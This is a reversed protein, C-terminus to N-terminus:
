RLKKEPMLRPTPNLTLSKSMPTLKVCGWLDADVRARLRAQNRHCDSSVSFVVFVVFVNVVCKCMELFIALKANAVRVWLEISLIISEPEM